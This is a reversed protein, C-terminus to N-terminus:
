ATRCAVPAFEMDQVAQSDISGMADNLIARQWNGGPPKRALIEAMVVSFERRADKKQHMKIDDRWDFSAHIL